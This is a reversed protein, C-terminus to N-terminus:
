CAPHGGCKNYGLSGGGTLSPDDSNIAAGSDVNANARYGANYRHAYYHHHHVTYAFAPTAVSALGIAAILALKTKTIMKDKEQTLLQL